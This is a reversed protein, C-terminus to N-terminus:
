GDQKSANRGYKEGQTISKMLEQPDAVLFLVEDVLHRMGDYFDGRFEMKDWYKSIELMMNALCKGQESNWVAKVHENRWDTDIIKRTQLYTQELELMEM